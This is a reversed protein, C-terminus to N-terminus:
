RVGKELILELNVIMFAVSISSSFFCIEIIKPTLFCKRLTIGLILHLKLFDIPKIMKLMFLRFLMKLSLTSSFINTAYVDSLINPGKNYVSSRSIPLHILEGFPFHYFVHTPVGLFSICTILVYKVWTESM